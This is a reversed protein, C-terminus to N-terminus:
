LIKKETQREPPNSLLFLDEIENGKFYVMDDLSRPVRMTSDPPRIQLIERNLQDRLHKKVYYDEDKNKSGFWLTLLTRFIGLFFVHLFDPLLGKSIDFHPILSVISPGKVGMEHASKEQECKRAQSHMREMTRREPPNEPDLIFVTNHGSGVECTKGQLECVFCGYEGNSYMINQVEARASADCTAIPAIALSKGNGNTKKNFWQIGETSLPILSDVFPRFFSNM